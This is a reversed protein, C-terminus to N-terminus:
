SERIQMATARAAATAYALLQLELECGLRPINMHQLHLGLFVYICVFMFKQLFPSVSLDSNLSEVAILSYRRNHEM